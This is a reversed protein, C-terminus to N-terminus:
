SNMIKKYEQQHEVMKLFVKYKKDHYKKEKIDPLILTGSGGMKDIAEQITSFDGSASAGLIASGLLVSEEEDPLIMPLGTIDVHSKVYLRNKRLGGCIILIDTIHGSNKMEELIHRTGYALAQLTSLYQIALDNIDCNLTLGCKMGKLSSDVLPSRNGHFDPWIHFDKTLESSSAVNKMSVLDDLQSNLFEHVHLNRQQALQKTELYAPHTEIIFDILKGTSSQGGEVNWFNPIIASNFPGWVGPVFLPEKSLQMHCTSTGCVLVMRKEVDPLNFSSDKPKCGLCGVVGAHADILSTGVPTSVVLGLEEAAEASLGSKCPMGPKRVDNGIKSYQNEALDNLGITSLFSESWGSNRQNDLHYNWKCTLSCLSRSLSGTARWTLFDPLDFFHGAKKWTDPLNEKLWLLKPMEMELSVKGGAFKLVDHGSMNIRDAQEQARHDMWMIINNTPDGNPCVTIPLGNSDFAVLSCTADFGIGNVQESKINAAAVIEKVTFVVASWIDKSSQQYYGPKPSWIQIEKISTKILKGKNSFLASRVSSTGVDVGIYYKDM